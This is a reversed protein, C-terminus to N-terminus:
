CHRDIGSDVPFHLSNIFLEVGMCLSERMTLLFLLQFVLFICTVANLNGSEIWVFTKVTLNRPTVMCAYIFINSKIIM